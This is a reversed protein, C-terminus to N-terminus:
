DPAHLIVDARLKGTRRSECWDENERLYEAIFRDLIRSVVSLVYRGDGGHTGTAGDDWVNVIGSFGFGTDQTRRMLAVDASFASKTPNINIYLYQPSEDNFLQAARIRSEAANVLDGETLGIKRSIKNRVSEVVVGMPNCFAALNFDLHGANHVAGAQSSLLAIAVGAVVSKAISRM